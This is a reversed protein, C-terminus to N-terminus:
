GLQDDDQSLITAARGSRGAQGALRRRRGRRLQDDDAEPIVPPRAAAITSQTSHSKPTIGAQEYGLVEGIQKSGEIMDQSKDGIWKYMKKFPKALDGM